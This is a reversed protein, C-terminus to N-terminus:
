QSSVSCGIGKGVILDEILALATHLRRGRLLFDLQAVSVKWLESSCSFKASVQRMAEYAMDLRCYLLKNWETIIMFTCVCVYVFFIWQCSMYREHKYSTEIVTSADSLFCLTGGWYDAPPDLISSALPSHNERDRLELWPESLTPKIVPHAYSMYFRNRFVNLLLFWVPLQSVWTWRRSVM